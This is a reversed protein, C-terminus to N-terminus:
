FQLIHDVRFRFTLLKIDFSFVFYFNEMQESPECVCLIELWRYM